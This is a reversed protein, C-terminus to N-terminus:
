SPPIQSVSPHETCHITLYILVCVGFKDKEGDLQALFEDLETTDVAEKFIPLVEINQDRILVTKDTSDSESQIM